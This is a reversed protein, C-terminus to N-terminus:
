QLDHAPFGTQPTSFPGKQVGGFPFDKPESTMIPMLLTYQQVVAAYPVRERPDRIFHSDFDSQSMRIVYAERPNLEWPEKSWNPGLRSRRHAEYQSFFRGIETYSDMYLKFDSLSVRVKWSAPSRWSPLQNTVFFFRAKRNKADLVIQFSEWSLDHSDSDYEVTFSVAGAARIEEETRRLFMTVSKPVLMM